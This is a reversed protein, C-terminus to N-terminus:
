AINLIKHMQISLAWQPNEKCLKVAENIHTYNPKLSNFAPSIYINDWEVKVDLLSQKDFDYPYLVRIENVKKISAHIYGKPSITIYDLGKPLPLSGNSEIAQKYGYQKFYDIITDNLQLAPEGGTWVIYKCPSYSQIAERLEGLGMEKFDTHDTDCFFCDKNCGALRIFISPEGTRKGEGQLSYFIENVNLTLM